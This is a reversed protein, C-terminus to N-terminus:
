CFLLIVLQHIKTIDKLKHGRNKQMDYSALFVSYYARGISTRIKAQFDYQSYKQINKAIGLFKKPDFRPSM